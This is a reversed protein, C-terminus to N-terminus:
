NLKTLYAAAHRLSQNRLANYFGWVVAAFALFILLSCALAAISISITFWVFAAIILHGGRKLSNQLVEVYKKRDSPDTLFHFVARDHWLDFPYPAVYETVDAEIWCVNEARRGLRERAYQIARSSIDLVTLDRYGKELLEDVLVSVGGGVDIIKAANDPKALTIFELSVAPNVQYWSVESPKKQEYVNEWHKKRSSDM